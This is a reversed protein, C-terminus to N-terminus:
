KRIKKRGKKRAEKKSSNNCVVLCSSVFFGGVPPEAPNPRAILLSKAECPAETIIASRSGGGEEKGEEADIWYM